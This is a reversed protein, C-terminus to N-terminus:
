ENSIRSIHHNWYERRAHRPQQKRESVKTGCKIGDQKERNARLIQARMEAMSLARLHTNRWIIGRLTGSTIAAKIVQSATIESTIEIGLCKFTMVQLIVKNGIESICRM